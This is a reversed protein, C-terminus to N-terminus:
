NIKFKTVESKLQDTSDGLDANMQSINVMANNIEATGQSIETMANSVTLSFNEVQVMAEQLNASSSKMANSNSLVERSETSLMIM